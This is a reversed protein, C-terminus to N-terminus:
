QKGGPTASADFAFILISPYVYTMPSKGMKSRNEKSDKGTLRVRGEGVLGITSGSMLEFKIFANRGYKAKIAKTALTYAGNPIRIKGKGNTRGKSHSSGKGWKVRTSDARVGELELKRAYPATNVIRIKDRDSFTQKDLWKELSAPSNAVQTGNYTVVNSTLYQGTLVPSREWVADFAYKIVERLNQRSVFQIKGLPNVDEVKKNHSGDVLTIPNKDFGEAQEERLVDSSITLLAKKTMTLLDNLTMKGWMDGELSWNPSKRGNEKVTVTM